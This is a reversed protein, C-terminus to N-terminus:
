SSYLLCRDFSGEFLKHALRHSAFNPLRAVSDVRWEFLHKLLLRIRRSRMNLLLLSDVSFSEDFDNFFINLAKSEISTSHVNSYLSNDFFLTASDITFDLRALLNTSQNSLFHLSCPPGM